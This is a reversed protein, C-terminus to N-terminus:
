NEVSDCRFKLESRYRILRIDKLGSRAELYKLMKDEQAKSLDRHLTVIAMNMTDVKMSGDQRAFFSRNLSFADVEPFLIRMESVISQTLQTFRRDNDLQRQLSDIKVAQLEMKRQNSKYLDSFVQSSLKNVDLNGSSFGQSIELTAGELGADAMKDYLAVKLSDVSISEGVLSVKIIKKGDVIDASRKLVQTNPFVFERDVFKNANNVFYNEKLMMYTLFISPIITIITIAYVIRTVYSSRKNDDIRVRPFRFFHVGLATAAGIFISNILFLYFAGLFYNFQLTALGYGATCLPPMLATAIAVGPLM